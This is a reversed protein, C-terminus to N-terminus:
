KKPEDESLGLIRAVSRLQTKGGDDAEMVDFLEDAAQTARMLVMPDSPHYKPCERYAMGATFGARFLQRRADSLKEADTPAPSVKEDAM